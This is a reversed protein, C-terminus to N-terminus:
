YLKWRLQPVRNGHREEDKAEVWKGTEEVYGFRRAQSGISGALNSPVKKYFCKEFDHILDEITFVRDHFRTRLHGERALKIHILVHELMKPNHDAVLSMGHGKLQAGIM